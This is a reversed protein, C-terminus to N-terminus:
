KLLHGTVISNRYRDAYTAVDAQKIVEVEPLRRVEPEFWAVQRVAVELYRPADETSTVEDRL